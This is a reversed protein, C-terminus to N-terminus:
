DNAAALREQAWLDVAVAAFFSHLEKPIQEDLASALGTVRVGWDTENLFAMGACVALARDKMFTLVQDVRAVEEATPAEIDSV